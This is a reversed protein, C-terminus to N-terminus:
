RLLPAHISDSLVKDYEVDEQFYAPTNEHCVLCRNASIVRKIENGNLLRSNERVASASLILKGDKLLYLSNLPKDCTDCIIASTFSGQNGASFLGDGFGYFYPNEHCQACSVARQPINHSFFPAYKFRKEGQFDFVAENVVKEGGSNTHTFFTQCGPTAPSIKGRQNLFLPFPYFTRLDETEFFAGQSTEGRIPDYSYAREDYETHCGYCQMVVKSHCAACDLREHGAVRHEPSGAITKIEKVEGSRKIVLWFKENEKFANSIARGKATALPEAASSVPKAYNLRVAELRREIDAHLTAPPTDGDGHCSECRIETQEYMNEYLYGDGMIESQTHCDICELGGKHHIDDAMHRLTRGGSTLVPGPEGSKTPVLANNGDYLGAYSLAIRGSRNHCSMCATDTPLKQISHSKPYIRLTKMSKDSGEYSGSRNYSFHCAACGSGRHADFGADIPSSLHCVSCFKRYLEGAITELEKIETLTVAEGKESFGEASVASFHKEYIGGWANITNKLIGSNTLMITSSAAKVQYEHCGGCSASWNEPSSPNKGGRMSAHAQVKDKVSSDGGHCLACPFNHASSVEEIGKHCSLCTNDEEFANKLLVAALLIIFVSPLLIKKM